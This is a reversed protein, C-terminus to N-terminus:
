LGGLFEIVSEVLNQFRGPVLKMGRGVRALVITLLAAVIFSMLMSNTFHLPGVVFLTEAVFSPKPPKVDGHPILSTIIIMVVGVAILIQTFRDRLITSM